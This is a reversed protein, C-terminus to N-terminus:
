GHYRFQSPYHPHADNNNYKAEVRSVVYDNANYVLCYRGILVVKSFVFRKGLLTTYHGKPILPAGDMDLVCLGVTSDTISPPQNASKIDTTVSVSM